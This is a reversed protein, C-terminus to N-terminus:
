VNLFDKKWPQPFLTMMNLIIYKLKFMAGFGIHFKLIDNSSKINVECVQIYKVNLETKRIYEM